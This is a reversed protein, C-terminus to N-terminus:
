PVNGTWRGKKDLVMPLLIPLGNDILGHGIVPRGLNTKDYAFALSKGDISCGVNMGWLLHNPNGLYGIRFETHYHGQVVCMGRQAVVKMVDKSLGHHFYVQNGGPVDILLDMHWQWGEPAELVENYGRLYKRPIGHHKGKRYVMSGHNSDILDMEPFLDYLPRLQRIAEQLEDGASFLDPDSDHFSLNHADVEDGVCIVRTPKYKEAVAALFRVTDPHQYPIHMDSIVLIRSNDGKRPPLEKPEIKKIPKKSATEQLPKLKRNARVVHRAAEATLERNWEASLYDAIEAFPMGDDRLDLIAGIQDATYKQSM